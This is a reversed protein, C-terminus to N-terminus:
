VFDSLPEVFSQDVQLFCKEELNPNQEQDYIFIDVGSPLM